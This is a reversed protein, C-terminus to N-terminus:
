GSQNHNTDVDMVDAPFDWDVSERQPVYSVQNRVEKLPKGKVEVYGSDPELLGMITKLLTTKGSGSPGLLTLFEGSNVELNVDNLAHFDGYTKTVSKISINLANSQM